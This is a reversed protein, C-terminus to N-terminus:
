NKKIVVRGLPKRSAEEEGSAGDEAESQPEPQPADSPVPAAVATEPQGRLVPEKERVAENREIFRIQGTATTERDTIQGSGDLALRVVTGTIANASVLTAHCLLEGNLKVSWEDFDPDTRHLATKM